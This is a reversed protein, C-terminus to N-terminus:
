LASLTADIVSQVFEPAMFGGWRLHTISGPSNPTPAEYFAVYPDVHDNVQLRFILPNTFHALFCTCFGKLICVLWAPGNLSLNSSQFGNM